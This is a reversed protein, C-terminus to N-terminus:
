NLRSKQILMTEKIKLNIWINKSAKRNLALSEADMDELEDTENLVRVGEEVALDFKGFVKKNWWCLKEMLLWINEKLIFDGRGRM